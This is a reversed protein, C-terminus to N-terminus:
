PLFSPRSATGTEAESLQELLGAMEEESLGEVMDLINSEQKEEQETKIQEIAQALEDIVPREFLRRLPVEVQFEERVRSIVQTVLLSHGGLYFFNDYIGVKEVGLIESWIAALRQQLEGTPAVYTQENNAKSRDPAPLAERDIKGNALLPLSQLMVFDAPVMYDPLYERATEQLQTITLESQARGVVYAALRESNPEDGWIKAVAEHVDSHRKLAAEIEGLEVRQGRLKVQNDRRGILEFNGDPLLRGFDGTKYIIDAPNASFPNQIFVQKTLEPANYYGLTLFPTRIYIEGAIGPDCVKRNADMIIAKAGDIPKGIPISNRTADAETIFHCFKAMTNETAGYLNVLQIRSGFVDIWQKIESPFLKEGAMVIYRVSKLDDGNLGHKILSRFVSPVCHILNIASRDIWDILSKPDIITERSRPVCITAGSCLPVFIDRLSADFTPAAMQSIKFDPGIAFAKIEWNIFHLLSKLRGAIAKPAGTSGSTFYIYCMDDPGSEVMPPSDDAFSAQDYASANPCVEVAESRTANIVLFKATAASEALVGNLKEYFEKEIIFLAPNITEIMSRLRSDPNDGNLPAFACGAKLTGVIIEILKVRDEVLIAIVSGKEIGSSILHNALKNSGAELEAYSVTQEGREIAAKAAFSRATEHLIEQLNSTRMKMKEPM